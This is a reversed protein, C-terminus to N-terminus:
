EEEELIDAFQYLMTFQQDKYAKLASMDTNKSNKMNKITIKNAWYAVKIKEALENYKQEYNM